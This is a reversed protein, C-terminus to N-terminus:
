AVATGNADRGDFLNRYMAQLDTLATQHSRIVVCGHAGVQSGLSGDAGIHVVSPVGQGAPSLWTAAGTGSDVAVLNGDTDEYVYMIRMLQKTSDFSVAWLIKRRSAQAAIVTTGDTELQLDSRDIQVASDDELKANRLSGGTTPGFRLRLQNRSGQVRLLDNTGDGIHFLSLTTTQETGGPAFNYVSQLPPLWWGAITFDNPKVGGGPWIEALRNIANNTNDIDIQPGTADTFDIFM